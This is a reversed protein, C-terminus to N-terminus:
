PGLGVTGGSTGPPRLRPEVVGGVSSRPMSEFPQGPGPGSPRPDAIGGSSRGSMSVPSPYRRATPSPGGPRKVPERTEVRLLDGAPEPRAEPQGTTGPVDHQHEHGGSRGAGRRGLQVNPGPGPGADPRPV